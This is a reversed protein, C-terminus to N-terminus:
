VAIGPPQTQPARSAPLKAQPAPVIIVATPLLPSFLPMPGIAQGYAVPILGRPMLLLPQLQRTSLMQLPMLMQRNMSTEINQMQAMQVQMSRMQQLAWAPMAAGGNGREIVISANGRPSRWSWTHVRVPGAATREVQVTEHMPLNRGDFHMMLPQAALAIAPICAGAALLWYRSKLMPVEEILIPTVGPDAPTVKASCFKNWAAGGRNM